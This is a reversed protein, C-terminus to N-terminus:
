TSLTVLLAFHRLLRRFGQFALALGNKFEKFPNKKKPYLHFFNVLMGKEVRGAISGMM